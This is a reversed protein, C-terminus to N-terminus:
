KAAAKAANRKALYARARVVGPSEAATAAGSGSPNPVASRIALVAKVACDFADGALTGAIVALDAELSPANATIVADIDALVTATIQSVYSEACTAFAGGAIKADAKAAACGHLQSTGIGLALLMVLPGGYAKALKSGLNDNAPIGASLRLATAKLSTRAATYGFAGLVTVIEAAVKGAESTSPIVGANLLAATVIALVMLLHESTLWGRVVTFPSGVPAPTPTPTPDPAPAPTPAPTATAM